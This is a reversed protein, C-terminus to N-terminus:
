QSPPVPPDVKADGLELGHRMLMPVNAIAFLFTAPLFGWLKSGAWFDTSTTRWVIENAAAMAFFFIVWNRTLLKWGRDSLGPYVSGLVAKLLNRDSLLGILLLSAVLVYYITPKIKIIWAQHFYLTLGGLVIVMFASFLLLFSVRRYRILSVIVAILIAVMFAATAFFIGRLANAAFFVVLPGLDTILRELANPHNRDESM